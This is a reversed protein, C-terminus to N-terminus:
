VKVTGALEDPPENHKSIQEEVKQALKQLADRAALEYSGAKCHVFLSDGYITLDIECVKNDNNPDAQQKFYVQAATIEKNRHHLDLLKDCTYSVVWEQVEPNHFRIKM